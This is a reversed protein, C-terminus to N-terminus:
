FELCLKHLDMNSRVSNTEEIRSREEREKELESETRRREQREKELAAQQDQLMKQMMALQSALDAPADSGSTNDSM